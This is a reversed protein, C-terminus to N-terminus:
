ACCTHYSSKLLNGEGRAPPRANEHQHVIGIPLQQYTDGRERKAKMRNTNKARIAIEIYLFMSRVIIKLTREPVGMGRCLRLLNALKEGRRKGDMRREGEGIM